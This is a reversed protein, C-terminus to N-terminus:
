WLKSRAVMLRWRRVKTNLNKWVLWNLREHTGLAGLIPEPPESEGLPSQRAGLSEEASTQSASSSCTGSCYSLASAGILRALATTEWTVTSSASPRGSRRETGWFHSRPM